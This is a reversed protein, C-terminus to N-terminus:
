NEEPLTWPNFDGAREQTLPEEFLLDLTTGDPNTTVVGTNPTIDAPQDIEPQGAETQAAPNAITASAVADFYANAVRVLEAPSYAQELLSARQMLQRTLEAAAQARASAKQADTPDKPLRQAIERNLLDTNFNWELNDDILKGTKLIALYVPKRNVLEEPDHLYAYVAFVEPKKLSRGTDLLEGIRNQASALITNAIQRGASARGNDSRVRDNLAIDIYNEINMPHCIEFYIQVAERVVVFDSLDRTEAAQRAALQNDAVLARVTVAKAGFLFVESSSDIAENFVATGLGVAAGVASGWQLFGALAATTGLLFNGVTQTSRLQFQADYVRRIFDTCALNSVHIAQDYLARNIEGCQIKAPTEGIGLAGERCKKALAGLNNLTLLDQGTPKPGVLEEVQETLPPGYLSERPDPGIRETCGSIGLAASMLSIVATKIGCRM